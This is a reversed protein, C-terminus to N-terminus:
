GRDQCFAEYSAADMLAELEALDSPKVKILWAAGFPDSNVLEPTEELARNVAVITGSVPANLDSAAKVSEVEGFPQGAKVTDGDDPLELFVVDSLADQAYDSIGIVAIGDEIRVWEDSKAYKVDTPFKMPFWELNHASVFVIEITGKPQKQGFVAVRARYCFLRGCTRHRGQTILHM